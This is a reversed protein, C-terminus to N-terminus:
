SSRNIRHTGLFLNILEYVILAFLILLMPMILISFHTYLAYSPGFGFAAVLSFKWFIHIQSRDILTLLLGHFFWYLVGGLFGLYMYTVAFTGPNEAHGGLSFIDFNSGRGYLVMLKGLNLRETDPFLEGIVFSNVFLRIDSLFGVSNEYLVKPMDMWLYLPDLQSFGGSITLFVNETNIYFDGLQLYSRLGTLIVYYGGGFIVIFLSGYIIYKKQIGKKLVYYSMVFSQSLALLLARSAMVINEVIFFLIFVKKISNNKDASHLYMASFFAYIGISGSRSSLWHLGTQSSSHVVGTLGIGTISIVLIKIIVLVCYLVVIIKLFRLTNLKLFFFNIHQSHFSEKELTETERKIQKGLLFGLFMTFACCLYFFTSYELEATTFDLVETFDIEGPYFYTIIYRQSFATTLTFSMVFTAVTNQMAVFYILVTSLFFLFITLSTYFQNETIGLLDIILIFLAILVFSGYAYQLLPKPITWVNNNM